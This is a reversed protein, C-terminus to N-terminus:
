MSEALEGIPPADDWLAAASPMQSPAQAAADETRLEVVGRGSPDATLTLEFYEGQLTVWVSGPVGMKEHDKSKAVDLRTANKDEHPKWALLLHDAANVWHASDALAYRNPPQRPDVAKVTHHAVIVILGLDESLRKIDYIRDGIYDTKSQRGMDLVIQNWPDLVFLNRKRFLAQHEMARILWEFTPPQGKPPRIYALHEAIWADRAAKEPDQMWRPKVKGKWFKKARQVPITRDGEAHFISGKIGPNAWILNMALVQTITSKGHGAQGGIVILSPRIPAFHKELFPIGCKLPKLPAITREAEIFDIYGDDWVPRAKNILDAVAHEGHQKLVDNADKTGEPYEPLWCYEDGILDVIAKRLLLGDHDGDTAVVIRRFKAVDPKLVSRGDEGAFTLCREAKSRAGSESNAAGSPVSVVFRFGSQLVALGDPEGETIILTDSTEPDALLCDENWLYIQDIGSPECRTRRKDNPDRLKDYLKVGKVIYPIAISPGRSTWGMEVAKEVSLRRGELWQGHTNSLM